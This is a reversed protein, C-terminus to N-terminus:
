FHLHLSIVIYVHCNAWRDNFHLDKPWELIVHTKRSLKVTLYHAEPNHVSCKSLLQSGESSQNRKKRGQKEKTCQLIDILITPSHLRSKNECLHMCLYPPLIVYFSLYMKYSICWTDLWCVGAAQM